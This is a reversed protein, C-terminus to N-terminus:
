IVAQHCQQLDLALEKLTTLFNSFPVTTRIVRGMNAIAPREANKAGVQSQADRLVTLEKGARTMVMM